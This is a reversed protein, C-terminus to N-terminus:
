VARRQTTRALLERRLQLLPLLLLSALVLWLYLAPVGLVLCAGLVVLQTSLGVNALVVLTLRDHYALTAAWREDAAEVGRLVRKLRWTSLARILRDQPAFFGRYVLELAGELRGGSGPPAETEGGRVQRYVEALNFDVSLVFTLACFAALALWLRGTTVGLVAFLFFNLATDSETDLYRGLLSVRGSLRALCGDTNDLLTKLQLLLVAAVFSTLALAVGAAVGTAAAMLVVAPPPIRTPILALALRYALPGFFMAVVLERAPRDKASARLTPVAASETSVTM